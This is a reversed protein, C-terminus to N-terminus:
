SATRQSQHAVLLTYFCLVLNQLPLQLPTPLAYIICVTPLWVLTNSILLPVIKRRFWGPIKIGALWERADFHGGVWDYVLVTVPVSFLPCYVFLDFATKIAITPLDNEPGVFRALLRYFLDIEFGKYSWFATIAASQAWTFQARTQRRTRLYWLPLVGGFFGTSLIPFIVGV